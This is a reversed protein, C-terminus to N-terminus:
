MLNVPTVTMLTPGAVSDIGTVSVPFNLGTLVISSSALVPISGPTGDGPITAAPAATLGANTSSNINLYMTQATGTNCVLLATASPDQSSVTVAAHSTAAVSLGITQGAVDYCQTFPM